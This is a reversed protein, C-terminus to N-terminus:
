QLTVLVRIVGQGETLPQLAKGLITGLPAEQGARMARGPSSSTTLLDGPLIPGNEASAKVPVVGIVALPVKGATDNESEAGGGGGIFGPKTSYVGAVSTQYPHTSRALTGDPGIILVDGPELGDAAPLLEALDAGGPTFAGDCYVNGDLAVRFRLNPWILFWSSAEILNSGSFSGVSLPVGSASFASVGFGTSSNGYVGGYQGGLYGYNQTNTNRGTVGYGDLQNSTGYVGSKNSASSDGRVGDDSSATGYVGLGTNNVRLGYSSNGNWDAGFHGHDGAAV